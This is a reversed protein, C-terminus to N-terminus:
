SLLRTSQTQTANAQSSAVSGIINSMNTSTFDASEKGFNIEKFPSEQQAKKVEGAISNKALEKFAENVEQVKELSNSLESRKTAMSNDLMDINLPIAGATGDFYTTSDGKLDELNHIKENIIGASGNFKSIFQAVEPQINDKTSVGNTVDELKNQITEISQLQDKLMSTVSSSTSINNIFKGVSSALDSRKTINDAGAIIDKSSDGLGIVEETASTKQTHGLITNVSNIASNNIQQLEM